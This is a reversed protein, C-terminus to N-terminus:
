LSNEILIEEIVSSIFTLIIESVGLIFTISFGSPKLYLFHGTNRPLPISERVSKEMPCSMQLSQCVNCIMCSIWPMQIQSDLKAM